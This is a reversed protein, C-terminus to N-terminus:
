FFSNKKKRKKQIILDRESLKDRVNNFRIFYAYSANIIVNCMYGLALILGLWNL